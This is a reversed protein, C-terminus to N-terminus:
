SSLIIGPWCSVLFCQTPRIIVEASNQWSGSHVHSLVEWILVVAEASVKIVASFGLCLIWSLQTWIGWARFSHSLLHMNSWCCIKHYNTVCRYFVLVPGINDFEAYHSIKKSFQLWASNSSEMFLCNKIIQTDFADFYKKKLLLLVSVKRM